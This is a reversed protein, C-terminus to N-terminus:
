GAKFDWPKSTTSKRDATAAAQPTYRSQQTLRLKCALSALRRSEKDRMDLLGKMTDPNLEKLMEALRDCMVKSRVYETLLPASDQQFWDVPKTAVISRWLEAEDQPMGEPPDIRSPLNTVTALSMSEASKRPM